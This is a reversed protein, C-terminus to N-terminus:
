QAVVKHVVVKRYLRDLRGLLAFVGSSALHFDPLGPVSLTGTWHRTDADYQAFFASQNPLRGGDPFQDLQDSLTKNKAERERKKAKKANRRLCRKCTTPEPQKKKKM